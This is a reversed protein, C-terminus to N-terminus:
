ASVSMGIVYTTACRVTYLWLMGIGFTALKWPRWLESFYQRDPLFTLIIKKDTMIDKQQGVAEPREHRPNTSVRAPAPETADNM